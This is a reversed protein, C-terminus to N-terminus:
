KTVIWRQIDQRAQICKTHMTKLEVHQRKLRVGVRVSYCDLPWKDAILRDQRAQICKTHMNKLEVRQRKLRVGVRVSYCHLPWKDPM